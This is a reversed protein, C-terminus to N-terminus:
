PADPYEMAARVCREVIVPIMARRYEASARTDDIPTAAARCADAAALVAETDGVQAGVLAAEAAPVRMPVPAVAGVALRAGTIVGETRELRVSASVVAIDVSRRLELRRYASTTGPAAAPLRLAVLLEGRGLCTVRPRVFFETLPVTREGGPGAVVAVADHVLLPTATEAAPSAHCLNGGVTAVAQMQRGGLLAAAEVLAPYRRRVETCRRLAAMTTGAGLVAEAGLSFVGLEPLGGVDVVLDPSSLGLRLDNMLDTGGALVAARAASGLAEVAGALDDARHYAPPTAVANMEATTV